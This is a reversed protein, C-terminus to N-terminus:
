TLSFLGVVRCQAGEEELSDEKLINFTKVADETKDVILEVGNGVILAKAEDTIEVAGDYGTGIIITEPQKILALKVDDAEILNAVKRDWGFIEGTWDTEIDTKYSQGDITITGSRYEEIM